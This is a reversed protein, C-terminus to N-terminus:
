NDILNLLGQLAEKKAQLSVLRLGPDNSKSLNDLCMNKEVSSLEKNLWRAIATLVTGANDVRQKWMDIDSESMENLFYPDDKLKSM